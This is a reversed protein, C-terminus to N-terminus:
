GVYCCKIDGREISSLCFTTQASSSQKKKHNLIKKKLNVQIKEAEDLLEDFKGLEWKNLRENLLNSNEINKTSVKQLLLAPAIQILM